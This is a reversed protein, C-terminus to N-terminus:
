AAGDRHVDRDVEHHVDRDAGGGHQLGRGDQHQLGRGTVEYAVHRSDLYALLDPVRDADVMFGRVTGVYYPTFGGDLLVQRANGKVIYTKGNEIVWLPKRPM